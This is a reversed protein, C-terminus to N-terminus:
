RIGKQLMSDWTMRGDGVADEFRDIRKLNETYINATRIEGM